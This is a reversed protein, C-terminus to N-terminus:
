PSRLRAGGLVITALVGLGLVAWGFWTWPPAPELAAGVGAVADIWRVGWGVPAMVVPAVV